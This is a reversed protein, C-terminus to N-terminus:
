SVRELVTMGNNNTKHLKFKWEPNDIVFEIIAPLLGLNAGTEGITGFIQTDHFAIYKRVKSAHLNLEQKVQEYIHWTDIFLLDTEEIEIELVNAAIFEVDKGFHKAIGFLNLVPEEQFLDYSTLKVDTALFARTSVGSRVGMEIVTKCEKALEHLIHLNENIDSPTNRVREYEKLFFDTILAQPDM